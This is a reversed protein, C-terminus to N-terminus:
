QVIIHKSSLIQSHDDMAILIYAGRNLNEINIATQGTSAANVNLVEQGFANIIRFQEIRESNVTCHVLETSPNPFVSLVLHNNEDIGAFNYPTYEEFSQKKGSYGKGTGVYAKGNVVFAVANKRESGGYNARVSWHDNDPNYEWLDDLLGGDTGM